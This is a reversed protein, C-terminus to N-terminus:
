GAGRALYLLQTHLSGFFSINSIQVKQSNASLRLRDVDASSNQFRSIKHTVSKNELRDRNYQFLPQVLLHNKTPGPKLQASLCVATPCSALSCMDRISGLFIEPRLGAEALAMASREAFAASPRTAGRCRGSGAQSWHKWEM